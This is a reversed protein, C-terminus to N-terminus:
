HNICIFETFEKEFSYRNDIRPRVVGIAILDVMSMMRTPNSLVIREIYNSIGRSYGM